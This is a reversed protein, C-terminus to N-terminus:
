IWKILRKQVINMKDTEEASYESKLLGTDCNNGQVINLKLLKGENGQIKIDPINQKTSQM